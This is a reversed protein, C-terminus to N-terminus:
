RIWKPDIRLQPMFEPLPTQTMQPAIPTVRQPAIPTVRQQLYPIASEQVASPAPAPTFFNKVDDWMGSFPSAFPTIREGRMPSDFPGRPAPRRIPYDQADVRKQGEYARHLAAQSFDDPVLAYNGVNANPNSEPHVWHQGKAPPAAPPNGAGSSARAGSARPAGPVAARPAAAPPAQAPQYMPLPGLMSMAWGLRNQFNTPVGSLVHPYASPFGVLPQVMMQGWPDVFTRYAATAYPSRHMLVPPINYNEHAERMGAPSYHAGSAPYAPLNNRNLSAYGVTQALNPRPTGYAAMYEDDPNPELGAVRAAATRLAAAVSPSENAM